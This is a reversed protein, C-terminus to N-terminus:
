SQINRMTARSTASYQILEGFVNREIDVSIEISRAGTFDTGSITVDDQDYFTFDMSVPDATFIRDPPCTESSLDQPCSTKESNESADTNALIRKYLIGDDLFYIFENFYPIGSAPDLVFENSSDLVPSQIVLTQQTNGTQWGENPANPDSITNTNLINSGLRIETSMQNFINSTDISMEARVSTKINSVYLDFGFTFVFGGVITILVIYILLEVVTVGSQNNTRM